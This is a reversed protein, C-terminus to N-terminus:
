GLGNSTSVHQFSEWEGAAVLAIPLGEDPLQKLVAGSGPIFDARRVIGRADFVQTGEDIITDGSDTFIILRKNM